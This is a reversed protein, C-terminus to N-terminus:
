VWKRRRNLHPMDSCTRTESEVIDGPSAPGLVIFLGFITFMTTEKDHVAISERIIELTSPNLSCNVFYLLSQQADKRIHREDWCM